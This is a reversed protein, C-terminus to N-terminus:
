RTENAQRERSLALVDRLTKERGDRTDYYLTRSPLPEAGNDPHLVGFTTSAVDLEDGLEPPTYDM